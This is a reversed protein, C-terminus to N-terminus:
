YNGNECPINDNDRDLSTNIALVLFFILVGLCGMKNNKNKVKRNKMGKNVFHGQVYTGDKKYYGRRYSM